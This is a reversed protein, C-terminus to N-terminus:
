TNSTLQALDFTIHSYYTFIYTYEPQHFHKAVFSPQKSEEAKNSVTVDVPAILSGRTCETALFVLEVYICSFYIYLSIFGQGVYVFIFM